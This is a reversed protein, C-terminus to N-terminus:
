GASRTSTGSPSSFGAATRKGSRNPRASVCEGQRVIRAICLISIAERLLVFAAGAFFLVTLAVPWWPAAAASEAVAEAEAALEGGAGVPEIPGAVVPDLPKRITVICLPLLFSMAATGVLVFRNFRHFTEKKLLFRYFLYFVLLAVAVKATYILFAFM